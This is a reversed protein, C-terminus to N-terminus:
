RPHEWIVVEVGQSLTVTKGPNAGLREAVGASRVNAPAILSILMDVDRERYAWDRVARAAETAYGKGWHARIFAWGLEPQAHDGATAFSTHSWTRVDWVLLGARGLVAGDERREAVFPGAGNQEWRELWIRLPWEPDVAADPHVGGIFEMAVPDTYLEVFASADELRPLRLLLRETEIM